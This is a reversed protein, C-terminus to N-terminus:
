VWNIKNSTNPDRKVAAEDQPTPNSPGGADRDDVLKRIKAGLATPAARRPADKMNEEAQSIMNEVEKPVNGTASPRSGPTAPTPQAAPQPAVANAARAYGCNPCSWGTPGYFLRDNCEPCFQDPYLVRQVLGFLQKKLEEPSDKWDDVTKDIREKLTPKKPQQTVPPTAVPEVKKETKPKDTKKKEVAM